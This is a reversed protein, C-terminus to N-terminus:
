PKYFMQAYGIKVEPVEKIELEFLEKIATIERFFDSCFKCSEEYNKGPAIFDEYGIKPSFKTVAYFIIESLYNLYIEHKDLLSAHSLERSVPTDLRSIFDPSSSGLRKIIMQKIGQILREKSRSEKEHLRGLISALDRGDRHDQQINSLLLNFHVTEMALTKKVIDCGKLYPLNKSCFPDAVKLVWQSNIRFFPDPAM